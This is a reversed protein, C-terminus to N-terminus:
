LHMWHPTKFKVIRTYLWVYSILFLVSSGILIPTSQWWLIAPTISLGALIWLYPATRANASLASDFHKALLIRRYILTHFHIGDPAGPNSNQHIRRRYITFLTEMIPYGNILLAFWPSVEPHAFCLWVSLAGIWFGILYAGGDGLFILGQPYNWIFFGLIAGAMVLSLFIITTDGLIYAVYGLALLTIIGVMSSLGNFGDIINYANSLGAIAIVTIAIGFYPIVFLFDILPIGLSKIQIGLLYIVCIASIATFLLRQRVGINKTLDETLGIAFTPIACILLIFGLHSPGLAFTKALVATFLGAAISIGGIRPVAAKHFKQPGTLNSDGSFHQHLHKFRIILLTVVFSTLFAVILGLM